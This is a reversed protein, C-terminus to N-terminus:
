DESQKGFYRIPKHRDNSTETKRVRFGLGLGSPFFLELEMWFLVGTSCAEYLRLRLM